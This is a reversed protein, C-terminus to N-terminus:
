QSADNGRDDFEGGHDDTSEGGWSSFDPSDKRSPRKSPGADRVGKKYIWRAVLAIIIVLFILFCAGCIDMQINM